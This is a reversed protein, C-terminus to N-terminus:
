RVLYGIAPYLDKTEHPFYQTIYKNGRVKTLQYVIMLISHFESNIPSNYNEKLLRGLYKKVANMIPM